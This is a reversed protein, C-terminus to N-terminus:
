QYTYDARAVLKKLKNYCLERTKLNFTNYAYRFTLYDGTLQIVQTFSSVRGQADYEFMFDPIMKQVRLNFRVIDTLRNNKNYYYYYNETQVNKRFWKEEAINGSEDKEFEVYTTDTGNKVLTMKTPMGKEDYHWYHIEAFSSKLVKDYNTSEIKDIRDNTYYFVSQSVNTEASDVSIKILDNEYVNRSYSVLGDSLVKTNFTTKSKNLTQTYRNIDEKLNGDEDYVPKQTLDKNNVTVSTYGSKVFNKYHNNTQETVIIDNYYYQASLFNAAISFIFFLGLQKM